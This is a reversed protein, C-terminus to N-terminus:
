RAHILKQMMFEPFKEDRMKALTHELDYGINMFSIQSTSQDFVAFQTDTNGSRPFGVSGPCVLSHQYDDLSYSKAIFKDSLRGERVYAGQIHTHGHFCARIARKRLENLNEEYTMKYVYANYFGPDVPAGHVALFGGWAAARPLRKLWERQQKHLREASWDIVWKALDSFGRMDHLGAAASDHNGMICILDDRMLCALTENVFPGYGVLDGLVISRQIGLHKLEALVAELAPLNAHVDALLGIQQQNASDFSVERVMTSYQDPQAGTIFGDIQETLRKNGHKSNEMVTLVERIFNDTFANRRASLLFDRGSKQCAQISLEPVHRLMAAIAAGWNVPRGTAYLDDDVYYVKNADAIFNSLALDLRKNSKSSVGCALQWVQKILPVLNVVSEVAITHLSELRKTLNGVVYHDDKDLVFWCRSPHYIQLSQEFEIHQKLWDLTRKKSHSHSYNARLKVVVQKDAFLRTSIKGSFASGHKFKVQQKDLLAQLAQASILPLQGATPFFIINKDASLQATM